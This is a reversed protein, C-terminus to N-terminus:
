TRRLSRYVEALRPGVVSLDHVREVYARGARGLRHREAGDELLRTLVSEFSDPDAQVLPLDSPYTERIDPRIHLLVPKGMAMGELAFVGHIGLRLQDVIVDATACIRLTEAHSTGTVRRYRCLGRRELGGVVRDVVDSGKLAPNSPAHMVWPLKESPDPFSPVFARTDLRQRVMVVRHFYPAVYERLEHDCVLATPIYRGLLDLNRRISPEDGDALPPLHPNRRRAISPLRAESGWFEAVLTRGMARLIPLDAHCPLLTNGAHFHFVDFRAAAWAFFAGVKLVDTPRYGGRRLGLSHDVPYGFPHDFYTCSMADLGAHRAAQATLSMQGAPNSPANLIRM